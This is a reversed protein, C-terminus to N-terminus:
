YYLLKTIHSEVTSEIETASSFIDALINDVSDHLGDDFWSVRVLM